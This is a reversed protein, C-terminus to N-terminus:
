QAENEAAPESGAACPGGCVLRRYESASMGEMKRFARNFTRRNTYGAASWIADINSEPDKLGEKVHLLRQTHIFDLIGVHLIDKFTRSLHSQNMQFLDCLKALCLNCDDYNDRIYDAVAYIKKQMAQEDNAIRATMEAFLDDTLQQMAKESDLPRLYLFGIDSAALGFINLLSEVHNMFCLRATDFSVAPNQLDAATMEQLVERATELDRGLICQYYQKELKANPQHAPRVSQGSPLPVMQVHEIKRLSRKQNLAQYAAVRAGPLKEHGQVIPSRAALLDLGYNRKVIDLASAMAGDIATLMRDTSQDEDPLNILINAFTMDSECCTAICYPGLATEFVNYVATKMFDVESQSFLGQDDTSFLQRRDVLELTAVIFYDTDYSVGLIATADPPPVKGYLTVEINARHLKKQALHLEEEQRALLDFVSDLQERLAAITEPLIRGDAPSAPFPSYM